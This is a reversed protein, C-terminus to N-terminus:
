KIYNEFYDYKKNVYYKIYNLNEETYILQIREHKKSNTFGYKFFKTEKM